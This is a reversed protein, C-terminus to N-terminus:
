DVHGSKCLSLSSVHKAAIQLFLTSDLLFPGCLTTTHNRASTGVNELLFFFDKVPLPFSKKPTIEVNVLEFDIFLLLAFSRANIWLAM